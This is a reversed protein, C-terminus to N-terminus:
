HGSERFAHIKGIRAGNAARAWTARFGGASSAQASVTEKDEPNLIAALEIPPEAHTEPPVKRNEGGSPGETEKLM